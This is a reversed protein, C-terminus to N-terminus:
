CMKLDCKLTTYSTCTRVKHWIYVLHNKNYRTRNPTSGLLLSPPPKFDEALKIAPRSVAHSERWIFRSSTSSLRRIFAHVFWRVCSIFHNLYYQAQHKILNWNLVLPNWFTITEHRRETKWVPTDTNPRFIIQDIVQQGCPKQIQYKSKNLASANRM